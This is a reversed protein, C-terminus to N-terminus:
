LSLDGRECFTSQFNIFYQWIITIFSYHVNKHRLFKSGSYLAINFVRKSIHVDIFSKQFSFFFIYEFYILWKVALHKWMFMIDLTNGILIISFWLTKMLHLISVCFEWSFNKCIQDNIETSHIDYIKDLDLYSFFASDPDIEM